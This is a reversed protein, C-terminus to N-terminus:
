RNRHARVPTVRRSPPWRRTTRSAPSSRRSPTWGISITEGAVGPTAREAQPRARGRPRPRRPTLIDFAADLDIEREANIVAITCLRPEGKRHWSGPWRIPHVIPKNSPDGGVIQAALARLAKLKQKDDGQAPAALRWHLHGKDHAVGEPDVWVGGSLVAVTPPGLLRELTDRAEGPRQDCEVSLALGAILDKETASTASAFVAIPPCFVVPRPAQAARRAVDIAVEILNALGDKVPATSIRFADKGGRDEYFARVSVFGRAGAARRFMVNVFLEIQASDPELLVPHAGGAGNGIIKRADAPTMREIDGDSYGRERLAAKMAITMVFPIGNAASQDAADTV